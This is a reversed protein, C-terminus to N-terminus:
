DNRCWGISEIIAKSRNSRLDEIEGCMLGLATTIAEQHSECSFLHYRLANMRKRRASAFWALGSRAVYKLVEIPGTPSGLWSAFTAEYSHISYEQWLASLLIEDSLPANCAAIYENHRIQEEPLAQRIVLKDESGEIVATLILPTSLIDNVDIIPTISWLANPINSWHKPDACYNGLGYFIHGNAFAEWGQPVHAHHGHVIDAGALVLQRYARQRGPSPWPFLEAAAHVSVVVIDVSNKLKKIDDYTRHDLVCVGARSPQASGFQRECYSLVGVTTGNLDLIAPTQRNLSTKVAGSHLHGNRAIEGLSNLHGHLGFDMYHNNALNYVIPGDRKVLTSNYLSPGAKMSPPPVQDRVGLFPGELNLIAPAMMHQDDVLYQGPAWDGCLMIKQKTM